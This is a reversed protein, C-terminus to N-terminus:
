KSAYTGVEKRVTSGEGKKRERQKYKSVRGSERVYEYESGRERGRERERERERV